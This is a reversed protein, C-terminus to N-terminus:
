GQRPTGRQPHTRALQEGHLPLRELLLDVGPEVILLDWYEPRIFGEDAAHRLFELLRANAVESRTGIGGPVLLVDLKPADDFSTEILAKPGQASAVPGAHEGITILDFERPLVGFMELPGFIDLLEFKDFFLAGLKRTAM